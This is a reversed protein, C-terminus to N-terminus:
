HDAREANTASPMPGPSVYVYERLPRGDPLNWDVRGVRFWGSRDYLVIAAHHDEVVDLVARRELRSAEETARDLLARGIGRRRGAPAVLLRAVVILDDTSLGTAAEALAMVERSSRSHLAVHGVVEGDLDAVWARVAGSDVIFSRLDGPLYKPYGDLRHTQVAIEELAAGDAPARDRIRM